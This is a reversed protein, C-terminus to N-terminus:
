SPSLFVFTEGINEAFKGFFFKPKQRFAFFINILNLHISFRSAADFKIQLRPGRFIAVTLGRVSSLQTETSLGHALAVLCAM